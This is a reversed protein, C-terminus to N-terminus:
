DGSFEKEPEAVVETTGGRRTLQGDALDYAHNVYEVVMPDHSVILFTTGQHEAIGRFLAMTRRATRTDLGNTPEDALIIGPRLALARAIAVRQRQGGSLEDPVHGSWASLGVAELAARTRRRREFYGLGPLRLALDINEAATYTPLLTANQFIFGIQRRRYKERRRDSMNLIDQGNVHITGANPRDLAGILNLLTTKGSGSPGFLAVLEGAQVELDVGRLVRLLSDGNGFSREVARIAVSIDSM